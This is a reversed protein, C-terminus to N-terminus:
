FSCDVGTPTAHCCSADYGAACVLQGTRGALGFTITYTAGDASTYLYSYGSEGGPDGDIKAMFIPNTCGASASFGSAGLCQATASGLTLGTAVPYLGSTTGDLYMDLATRIQRIDAVRRADRSKQRANSLSSTALTALLGIIAIVLLLEILTFGPRHVKAQAFLM